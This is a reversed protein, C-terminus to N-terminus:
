AYIRGPTSIALRDGLLKSCFTREIDFLDANLMSIEDIVLVDLELWRLKLFRRSRIKTVLSDESDNGLGIGLFSHLTTGGILLASTGTTSTLGINLKKNDRRPTKQRCGFTRCFKQIVYSKGVGAVGTLFVSSGGSMKEYAFNQEKNLNM